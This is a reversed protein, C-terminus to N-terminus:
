EKLMFAHFMSAMGALFLGLGVVVAPIQLIDPTSFLAPYMGLAAMFVAGPFAIFFGGAFFLCRKKWTSLNAIFKMSRHKISHM